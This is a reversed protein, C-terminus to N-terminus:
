GAEPVGTELLELVSRFNVPKLLHHDFGAEKSRDRDKQQGYGSLAILLLSRGDWRARLAAAVEYGSAGPLGIDLVAMHPEFREALAIAALGDHATEVEYGKMSFLRQLAAVTELNDDVLLLRRRTGSTAARDAPPDRGPPAEATADPSPTRAPDTAPLRITFATGRGPGDSAAEVSGGHMEVIRKVLTLGMGLGGRSRDITTDVQAFMEFM